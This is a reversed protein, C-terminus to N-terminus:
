ERSALLDPELRDRCAQRTAVHFSRLRRKARRQRIVAQVVVSPRPSTEVERACARESRDPELRGAVCPLAPPTTRGGDLTARRGSADGEPLRRTAVDRDGATSHQGPIQAVPAAVGPRDPSRRRTRSSPLATTWQSRPVASAMLMGATGAAGRRKPSHLWHVDPCYAIAARDEMVVSGPPLSAVSLCPPRFRTGYREDYAFLAIEYAHNSSTGRSTRVSRSIRSAPRGTTSVRRRSSDMVSCYAMSRPSM